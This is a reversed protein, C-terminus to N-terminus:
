ARIQLIRCQLVYRAVVLAERGWGLVGFMDVFVEVLGLTQEAEETTLTPDNFIEQELTRSFEEDQLATSGNIVLLSVLIIAIVNFVAGIVGLIIEGTRSFM